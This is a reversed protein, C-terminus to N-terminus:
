SGIIALSTVQPSRSFAISACTAREVPELDVPDAVIMSKREASICCGRKREPSIVVPKM